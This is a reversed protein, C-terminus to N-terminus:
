PKKLPVRHKEFVYTSGEDIILPILKHTTTIAPIEREVDWEYGIDYYYINGNEFFIFLRSAKGNAINRFQIDQITGYRSPIHKRSNRHYMKGRGVEFPNADRKKDTFWEISPVYFESFEAYFIRGDEELWAVANGSVAIRIPRESKLYLLQPKPINVRYTPVGGWRYIKGGETLLLKWMTILSSDVKPGVVQVAPDEPNNYVENPGDYVVGEATLYLDHLVSTINPTDLFIQQPVLNDGGWSWVEGRDNLIVMRDSYLEVEVIKM